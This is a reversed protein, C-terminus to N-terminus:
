SIGKKTQMRQCIQAAVKRDDFEVIKHAFIQYPEHGKGAILIIDEHTAMNIALEIAKYRDLEVVHSDKRKFGKLIQAAIVSPDESRPNDCTVITVDSLEESAHGMKQRKSQDRDGGCGFVTIIKKPKLERLCELVNILADDTHAFDVYIKLCLDNKVRELRGPVPSFTEILHAITKLPVQRCLIVASAALVNYVNYRGVLPSKCQIEEGKYSLTFQTVDATMQINSARLDAPSEIGYTLIKAKCGEIIKNKWPSDVNVVAVKPFSKKTERQSYMGLSKFLKQKALCYNDMTQHYDLHDVTLNTFVAVDYDIYQVRGQELAHSSVEMVASQCGQLVMERLLKHNTTIDPSTLTAQYRHKGIIYEVTGIVGCPSSLQDLMHKILFSTTTKGNTGTIGVMFMENGAFQYYHAAVLGEMKQVDPHILQTVDKLSPDCIDTLIASAGASIAEPIYQNGDFARGRKAVFLNGPSVLKSNCCVGTIEIDKSGKVQSFPIDKILKKIKM